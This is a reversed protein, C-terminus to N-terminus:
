ARPETGSRAQPQAIDNLTHLHREIVRYHAALREREDAPIDARALVGAIAVFAGGLEQVMATFRADGRTLAKAAHGYRKGTAPDYRSPWLVQPTTGLFRALVAEQQGCDGRRVTSLFSYRLDPERLHIADVIVSIRKPHGEVHFAEVLRERFAPIDIDGNPLRSLTAPDIADYRALREADRQARAPQNRKISEVVERRRVQQPRLADSHEHRTWERRKEQKAREREMAAQAAPNDLSHYYRGDIMRGSCRAAAQEVKVCVDVTAIM